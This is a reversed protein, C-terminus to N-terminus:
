ALASERRRRMVARGGFWLGALVLALPLLAGLARLVFNLSAQLSAVTDDLADATSDEPGGIADGRSGDSITVSVSAYDTRLRLSRLDSRLRRIEIANADL